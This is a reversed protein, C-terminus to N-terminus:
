KSSKLPHEASCLNTNVMQVPALNIRPSFHTPVHTLSISLETGETNAIQPTDITM